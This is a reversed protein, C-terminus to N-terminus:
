VFVQLVGVQPLCYIVLINEISLITSKMLFICEPSYVGTTAVPPGYHSTPRDIISLLAAAIFLVAVTLVAAM